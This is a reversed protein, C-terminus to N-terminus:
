IDGTFASEYREAVRGERLLLVDYRVHMTSYERHRVLFIKSTEVIRRRKDAGLASGLEEPGYIQWSKVEVFALVDDRTAVLDIEGRRSRFNRAVVTWGESELLSAAAEEGARGAASTSLRAPKV